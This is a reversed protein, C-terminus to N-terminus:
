GSVAPNSSAATTLTHASSSSWSTIGTAVYARRGTRVALAVPEAGGTADHGELGELRAGPVLVQLVM